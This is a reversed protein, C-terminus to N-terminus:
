RESGLAPPPPTPHPMRGYADNEDGSPSTRSIPDPPIDGPSRDSVTTRDLDPTYSQPQSAYGGSQTCAGLMMLPGAAALLYWRM